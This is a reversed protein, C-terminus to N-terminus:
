RGFIMSVLDVTKFIILLYHFSKLFHEESFFFFRGCVALKGAERYKQFTRNGLSPIEGYRFKLTTSVASPLYIAALYLAALFGAIGGLSISLESYCLSFNILLISPQNIVLVATTTRKTASFEGIQWHEPVTISIQDDLFSPSATAGDMSPAATPSMTPYPELPTALGNTYRVLFAVLFFVVFCVVFQFFNSTILRSHFWIGEERFISKNIIKKWAWLIGGSQARHSELSQYNLLARGTSNLLATGGRSTMVTMGSRSRTELTSESSPVEDQHLDLAHDLLRNVKFLAAQKTRTEKRVMGNTMSVTIRRFWLLKDRPLVTRLMLLLQLFLLLLGVVLSIVYYQIWGEQKKTTDFFATKVQYFYPLVCFVIVTLMGVCLPWISDSDAAGFSGFFVLSHIRM